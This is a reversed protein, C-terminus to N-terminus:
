KSQEIESTFYYYLLTCGLFAIFFFLPILLIIFELLSFDFKCFYASYLFIGIAVFVAIIFIGSFIFFSGIKKTREFFIKSSQFYVWGLSLIAIIAVSYVFFFECKSFVPNDPINEVLMM